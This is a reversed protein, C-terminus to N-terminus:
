TFFSIGYGSISKKNQAEDIVFRVIKRGLLLREVSRSRLSEPSIYLLKASGDQVREIAKAREIPDLLGNITVSDTIGSRELNDVQDKMLSQLPSIIVTLGKTSRGAMLAPVQFTISKGGGTPFLALLSKNYIAATVAREQLPVGDFSRYADYGFFDKLGVLPDLQSKCYSCGEICPNARLLFMLRDVEPYMKMVWPPTVSAEDDANILSLCYALEIPSELIANSLNTHHCIQEEFRIRIRKTLGEINMSANESIGLYDFFGSFEKTKALLGFLIKKMDGDLRNFASVEDYFLDRAQVSDNLPNNLQESYLKDDKVLHHYPRSPFLLSSLHLTDIVVKDIISPNIKKLFKLDHQIVNHGCVYYAKDAFSFFAEKSTTHIKEGNSLIAGFDKVKKSEITVETDFFLIDKM